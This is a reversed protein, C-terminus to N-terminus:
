IRRSIGVTREFLPKNTFVGDQVNVQFKFQREKVRLYFRPRGKMYM